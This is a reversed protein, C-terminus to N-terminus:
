MNQSYRVHISNCYSHVNLCNGPDEVKLNNKLHHFTSLNFKDVNAPNQLEILDKREFPEDTLLDKWSKSKINLQEM